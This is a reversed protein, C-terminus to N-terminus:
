QNGLKQRIPLFNFITFLNIPYFVHTDTYRAVRFYGRLFVDILFFPLLFYRSLFLHWRILRQAKLNGPWVNLSLTGM